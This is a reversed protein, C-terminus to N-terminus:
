KLNYHLESFHKKFHFKKGDDLSNFIQLSITGGNKVHNLIKEYYEEMFSVKMLDSFLINNEECEKKMRELFENMTEM